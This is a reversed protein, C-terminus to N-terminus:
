LCKGVGIQALDHQARSVRAATLGVAWALRKANGDGAAIVASKYRMSADLLMADMDAIRPALPSAASLSPTLKLAGAQVDLVANYDAQANAHNVGASLATGVPKLVPASACLARLKAVFAADGSRNPKPAAISACGGLLLTLAIVLLARKPPRM